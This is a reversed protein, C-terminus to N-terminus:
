DKETPQEINTYQLTVDRVNNAAVIRYRSPEVKVKSLVAGSVNNLSISESGQQASPSELKLTFGELQIDELPENEPNSDADPGIVIATNTNAISDFRANLITRNTGLGVLSTHSRNIYIPNDLHLEGVPLVVDVRGEAPLNDLIAQLASSDDKNDNPILDAGVIEAPQAAVVRLGQWWGSLDNLPSLIGLLSFLFVAFATVQAWILFRSTGRTLKQQWDSGKVSLKRDGRNFWRQQALNMQTWIKVVASMWQSLLMIVLHEPKLVSPRGAFIIMLMLSRTLIIWCILLGVILWQTTFIAFLLLAPAILSTWMSIRQDILCLTVFFGLRRPGLALARNGNRLMNGFWRRMNQYVRQMLSGSISEISYVMVDPIYLMDYNGNRLMWYWTTKDDGSLFKFKGWLWDDLMDNELQAAFTPDLVVSSRYLSFRGTLCLVKRSLSVSSMQYHRQAFRIHFWESFWYSGDVVPVEDTTLAGLKPFTNFFPLSRRLTGPTFETDGDMLAVVSDEPLLQHQAIYRLGSSLAGRKGSGPDVAHFVRVASLTPDGLKLAAVIAADEAPGSSVTVITIPQALTKAELAISRFVRETIWPKEKYTPILLCVHPLDEIPVTNARRRWRPFVGARYIASRVLHMALWGWRWLGLAGISVLGSWGLRELQQADRFTALGWLGILAMLVFLLGNIFPSRQRSRTTSSVM